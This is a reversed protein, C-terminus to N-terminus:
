PGCISLPDAQQLASVVDDCASQQAGSLAGFDVGYTPTYWPTNDIRSVRCTAAGPASDFLWTTNVSGDRDIQYLYTNANTVTNPYTACQELPGVPPVNANAALWMEADQISGFPTTPAPAALCPCDCADGLGNGNSDEQGNNSVAPCNDEGNPIGDSDQDACPPFGGGTADVIKTYVRDCANANAQPEAADCDMAECYANCLGYAKGSLGAESCVDEVAPTEGDATQAYSAPVIALALGIMLCVSLAWRMGQHKWNMM